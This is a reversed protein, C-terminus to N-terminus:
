YDIVKLYKKNPIIDSTGPIFMQTQKVSIKSPNLM